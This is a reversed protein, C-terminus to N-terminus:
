WPWRNGISCTPPCQVEFAMGQWSRIRFRGTGMVELKAPEKVILVQRPAVNCLEQAIGSPWEIRLVDVNRADGLGFHAVFSQGGWPTGGADILRLQRVEKGGIKAKVRVKAGTGFRPSATGVCKVEIWANSNGNNRFLRNSWTSSEDHDDVFLDLAGDQNYDVWNVAVSAGVDNAPSGTTIRSLTGDGNNRYFLCRSRDSQLWGNAVILDIWGDNDYDGWACAWSNAREAALSGVDNTTLRTFHCAGDNRYFAAIGTGSPYGLWPVFVDLDGDNDYDAWAAGSWKGLENVLPEGTIRVFGGDGRNRYLGNTGSAIVFLDPWGNDDVDVWSPYGFKGLDGTLCNALKLFTGDGQNQYFWNTRNQSSVYGNAVFLDLDGDRDYDGWASAMSITGDRVVANTTIRTFTGDGNNRLLRSNGSSGYYSSWNPMFLDLHGDNDYDVWQFWWTDNNHQGQLSPVLVRTFTGDGNNRYIPNWSSDLTQIFLDLDGDNDYDGWAQGHWHRKDTVLEGTIIPTFTPDVDLVAPASNTTGGPDAVAVTYPGANSLQVNLLTLSANTARPILHDQHRWQYTVPPNTSTATVRFVATAGLSVSLTTPQRTLTPQALCVVSGDKLLSFLLVWAGLTRTRWLNSTKM